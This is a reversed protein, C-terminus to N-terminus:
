WLALPPCKAKERVRIFTAEIERLRHYTIHVDWDGDLAEARVGNPWTDAVKMAHLVGGTDRMEIVDGTCCNYLVKDGVKVM